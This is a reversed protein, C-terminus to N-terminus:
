SPLGLFAKVPVLTAAPDEEHPVHGLNDLVVLQSDPIDSHFRRGYALPILRDRGGWLVLTPLRLTAIPAPDGPQAREAVRQAFARRNGERLTMEFYRDVLADTVRNPDGYLSRVSDVIVARPLLYESIWGAGPLQALRMGLPLAADPTPYGAANILVLREVRAPAAVATRWAVEGGLANGVIVFRPLKLADMLDLVFLAYEEPRYQHGAYAGAFPGTLGYGPLDVAIVRRQGRLGRVWGEWTHLSSATGHLLLIPLPDNRPGEDRLHVLQGKLELFDSPPPAWRHVLSEVSRDPARMLSVALATVMLLGGVLRLLFGPLDTGGAQQRM